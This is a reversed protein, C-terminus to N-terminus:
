PVCVIIREKDIWVKTNGIKEVVRVVQSIYAYQLIVVIAKLAKYLVKSNSQIVQPTKVPILYNPSKENSKKLVGVFQSYNSYAEENKVSRFFRRM